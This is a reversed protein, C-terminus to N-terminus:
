RGQAAVFYLRAGQLCPLRRRPGGAGRSENSALRGRMWRISLAPRRGSITATCMYDWVGETQEDPDAVTAREWVGGPQDDQPAVISLFVILDEPQEFALFIWPDDPKDFMDQCCEDTRIGTRWMWYILEAIERDIWAAQERTAVVVASHEGSFHHIPVERARHAGLYEPDVFQEDSYDIGAM